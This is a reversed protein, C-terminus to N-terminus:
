PVKALFEFVRLGFPELSITAKGNNVPILAGSVQDRLVGNGDILMATVRTERSTNVATASPLPGSFYM